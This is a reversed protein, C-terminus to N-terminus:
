KTTADAKAAREDTQGRGSRRLEPQQPTSMTVNRTTPRDAAV